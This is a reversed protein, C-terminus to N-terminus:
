RRNRCTCVHVRDPAPGALSVRRYYGRLTPHPPNIQSAAILNTFFFGVAFRSFKAHSECHKAAAHRASHTVDPVPPGARSVTLFANKKRPRNTPRLNRGSRLKPKGGNAAFPSPAPPLHERAWGHASNTDRHHAGGHTQEASSRRSPDTTTTAATTTATATTATTATAVTAVHSLFRFFSFSVRSFSNRAPFFSYRRHHRRPLLSTQHYLQTPLTSLFLVLRLSSLLLLLFLPLFSFPPSRLSYPFFFFLRHRPYPPPYATTSSTTTTTTTAAHPM